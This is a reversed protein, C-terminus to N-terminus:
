KKNVGWYELIKQADCKGFQMSNKSQHVYEKVCRFSVNRYGEFAYYSFNKYDILNKMQFLYSEGMAIKRKKVQPDNKKHLFCDDLPFPRLKYDESSYPTEDKLNLLWDSYYKNFDHAIKNINLYDYAALWESCNPLRYIFLISDPNEMLTKWKCYNMANDWSIGLVPFDDYESGSIYKNRVENTGMNSDPLQTLYFNYSSDKKVSNLYVKYEKFTIQESIQFGDITQNNGQYSDGLISFLNLSQTPIDYFKTSKEILTYSTAITAVVIVFSIISLKKVKYKNFNM